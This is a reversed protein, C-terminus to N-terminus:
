EREVKRKKSTRKKASAKKAPAKPGVDRGVVQAEHGAVAFEDTIKQLLWLPKGEQERGKMKFLRWGGRLRGGELDFRLAGKRWGETPDDDPIFAGIDWRYVQGAGYTGEPLM